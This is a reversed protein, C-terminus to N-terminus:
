WARPRDATVRAGESPDAPGPVRPAGPETEAQDAVAASGAPPRDAGAAPGGAAQQGTSGPQRFYGSILERQQALLQDFHKDVNAEGIAEATLYLDKIQQLKRARDHVTEDRPDDPGGADPVQDARVPDPAADAGAPVRHTAGPPDASSVLPEFPGRVEEIVHATTATGAGAAPLDYWYAADNEDPGPVAASPGDPQDSTDRYIFVDAAVPAEPPEALGDPGAPRGVGSPRISSASRVPHDSGRIVQAYGGGFPEDGVGPGGPRPTGAHGPPGPGRGGPVTYGPDHPPM